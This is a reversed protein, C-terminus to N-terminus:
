YINLVLHCGLGGVILRATAIRDTLPKGTAFLESTVAESDKMDNLKQAKSQKDKKNTLVQGRRVLLQDDNTQIQGLRHLITETMEKSGATLKVIQMQLEIINDSQAKILGKM